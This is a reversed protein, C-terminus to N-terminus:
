EVKHTSTGGIKVRPASMDVTRLRLTAFQSRHDPVAHEERFTKSPLFEYEFHYCFYNRFEAARKRRKEFYRSVALVLGLIVVFGGFLLLYNALYLMAIEKTQIDAAASFGQPACFHSRARVPSAPQCFGLSTQFARGQLPPTKGSNLSLIRVNIQPTAYLPVSLNLV